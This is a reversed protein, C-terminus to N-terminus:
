FGECLWMTLWNKGFEGLVVLFRLFSEGNYVLFLLCGLVELRFSWVCVGGFGRISVFVGFLNFGLLCIGKSFWDSLMFM